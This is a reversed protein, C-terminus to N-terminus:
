GSGYVSSDTEGVVYNSDTILEITSEDNMIESIGDDIHKGLHKLFQIALM